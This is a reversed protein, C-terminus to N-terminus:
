SMPVPLGQQVELVAREGLPSALDVTATRRAGISPCTDSSDHPHERIIVAIANASEVAEATYDSGCPEDGTGPAGTFVVTLGNGAPSASEIALGGPSNYPDWSPPTVKVAGDVAPRTVRMATNAITFEWAPVTAEGRTTPLRVTSLRASTVKMSVCDAAVREPLVEQAPMLPLSLREGSAWVVEATSAPPGPLSGVVDFCGAALSQKYDENAQELEGVVGTLDGVPVFRPGGGAARLAEDYRDLAARAQKLLRDDGDPAGAGSGCGALLLVFVSVLRRGMM